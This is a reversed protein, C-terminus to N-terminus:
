RVDSKSQIIDLMKKLTKKTQREMVSSKECKEGIYNLSLHLRKKSKELFDWLEHKNKRYAERTQRKVYNRHVAKKLKRKSVGVMCLIAVDDNEPLPVIDYVVRFPYVFFSDGKEYLADVLLHGCLHEGKPFTNRRQEM